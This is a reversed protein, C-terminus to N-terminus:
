RSNCARLTWSGTCHLHKLDLDLTVKLFVKPGTYLCYLFMATLYLVPDLTHPSHDTASFGLGSVSLGQVWFQECLGWLSSAVTNKVPIESM